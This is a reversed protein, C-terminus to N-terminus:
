EEEAAIDREGSTYPLLAERKGGKHRWPFTLKDVARRLEGLREVPQDGGVEIIVGDVGAGWLVQLENATVGSPVAVLLPKALLSAFRQFTMLHRWTLFGDKAPEGAILVADVPLEGAAKLLGESLSAEAELIRGVKDNQLIALSTNAAPFVLFDCDIKAKQKIGGRGIDRLWGGWPIDPVIQRMEKLTKIGSSLNSIPLLGADAGAVYDALRDVNGQTLSAILLIKPKPAVREARFGMPQPVGRSVQNLKDIFKSM